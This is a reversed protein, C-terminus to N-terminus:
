QSDDPPVAWRSSLALKRRISKTKAGVVHAHAPEDPLPDAEIALDLALCTSIDVEAVAIGLAVDHANRGDAELTSRVVVSM